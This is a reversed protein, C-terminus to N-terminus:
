SRLTRPYIRFEENDRNAMLAGYMSAVDIVLIAYEDDEEVNLVYNKVSGHLGGVKIDFKV